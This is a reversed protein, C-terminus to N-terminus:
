AICPAYFAGPPQPPLCVLQHWLIHCHMFWIGPNDAKFRIVAWSGVFVTVSDRYVPNVLNFGADDTAASYNGVGSGIVQGM